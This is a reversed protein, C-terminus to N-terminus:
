AESYHISFSYYPYICPLSATHASSKADLILGAVFLQRLQELLGDFYRQLQPGLHDGGAVHPRRVDGRHQRGGGPVPGQPGEGHLPAEGVGLPAHQDEVGAHLRSLFPLHERAAYVIAPAQDGRRRIVLPLLDVGLPLLSVGELRLVPRGQEQRPQVDASRVLMLEGAEGHQGLVRVPGDPLEVGAHGHQHGVGPRLFPEGRVRVEQAHDLVQPHRHRSFPCLRHDANDVPVFELLQDDAFAQVMEFPVIEDKRGHLILIDDMYPTFDAHLLDVARIQDLYVKDVTVKRDFGVAAEKGKQLKELKRDIYEDKTNVNRVTKKGFVTNTLSIYKTRANDFILRLKHEGNAILKEIVPLLRRSYIACLPHIRNEDCIVYCDYDSSIFEAIYDAIKSTVFPMDCACIFVYDNESSKLIQRIGEIPGIDKNEDSVIKYSYKEYEKQGSSSIIIEHGDFERFLRSIFTGSEYELLAKNKGMRSNKGGALIGVSYAKTDASM